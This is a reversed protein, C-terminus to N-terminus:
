LRDMAMVMVMDEWGWIVGGIGGVGIEVGIVVEIEGGIEVEIGEEIGWLTHM